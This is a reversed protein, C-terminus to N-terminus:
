SKLKRKIEKNTDKLTKDWRRDFEKETIIDGNYLEIYYITDPKNTLRIINEKKFVHGNVVSVKTTICSTLISILLFILYKMNLKERLIHIRLKIVFFFNSKM